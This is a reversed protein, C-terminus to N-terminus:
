GGAMGLPCSVLSRANVGERLVSDEAEGRLDADIESRFAGRAGLELDHLLEQHGAVRPGAGDELADAHGEPVPKELAGLEVAQLVDEDQSADGGAFPPRDDEVLGFLHHEGLRRLDGIPHLDVKRVFGVAAHTLRDSRRAKRGSSRAIPAGTFRFSSTRLSRASPASIKMGSPDGASPATRLDVCRPMQAWWSSRSIM